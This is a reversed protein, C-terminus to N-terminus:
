FLDVDGSSAGPSPANRGPAVVPVPPEDRAASMKLVQARGTGPWFRVRRGQTGGLCHNSLRIGEDTLFARAFEANSKGIDSLSRVVSAGGFLKAELRDRQAGNRLVANILREMAYAGYKINQRDRPDAGPLLFHNMGGIGRATDYICAAVCSGLITTLVDEPRNSVRFEGQIVNIVNQHRELM